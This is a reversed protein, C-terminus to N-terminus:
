GGYVAVMDATNDITYVYYQTDSVREVTPHIVSGTSGSERFSITVNDYDFGAPVTVQQRYFGTPGGYTVWSGSAITQEVGTISQAPLKASNTGNHTHDNLKQINDELATFLASGRDGSQPKVFGYTLTTSM